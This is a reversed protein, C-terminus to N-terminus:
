NYLVCIFEVLCRCDPCISMHGESGMLNEWTWRPSDFWFWHLEESPKGCLPCPLHNTLDKMKFGPCPTKDNDLFEKVDELPFYADEIQNRDYEIGKEDLAKILEEKSLIRLDEKDKDKNM